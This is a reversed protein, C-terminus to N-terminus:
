PHMEFDVGSEKFMSKAEEFSDAWKAGAGDPMRCIVRKIGTQIICAACNACPFLPSIYITCNDLREHATLIANLEAHITRLLKRPRDNYISEDDNVNRPFGNYGMSVVTNDPRLIVAGVKTSPDRSRKSVTDALELAWTHVDPRSTM